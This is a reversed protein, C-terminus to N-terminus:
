WETLTVQSMDTTKEPYQSKRWWYFQGGRCLQFNSFTANLVWIGLRLGVTMAMIAKGLIVNYNILLVLVIYLYYTIKVLVSIRSLTLSSYIMCLWKFIITDNFYLFVGNVIVFSKKPELTMNIYQIIHKHKMFHKLLILTLVRRDYTIM